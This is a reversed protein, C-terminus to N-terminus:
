GENRDLRAVMGARYKKVLEIGLFDRGLKSAVALTTGSGAFPDLVTCPVDKFTLCQCTREWGLSEYVPSTVSPMGTRHYGRGTNGVRAPRRSSKWEQARAGEPVEVTKRVLRRLPTGCASCAGAESTGLMICRRPIEPPFVASHETQVEGRTRISWVGRLHAGSEERISHKDYYYSGNKSLLFIPESSRTPRDNLSEPVTTTKFWVIESRLIWGAAQLERVVLWPVGLLRKNSYSDGINLWLTGDERLTRRVESLIAALHKVYLGVSPELGLQGWWAKCRACTATDRRQLVKKHNCDPDGDFWHRV